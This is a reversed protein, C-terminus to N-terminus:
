DRLASLGSVNATRPSAARGAAQKTARERYEKVLQERDVPQLRPDDLNTRRIDRMALGARMLGAVAAAHYPEDGVWTQSLQALRVWPRWEDWRKSIKQAAYNRRFKPCVRAGSSKSNRPM